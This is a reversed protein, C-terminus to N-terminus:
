NKLFDDYGGQAINITQLLIPALKEIAGRDKLYVVFEASQSTNGKKPESNVKQAGNYTSIAIGPFEGEAEDAILHINQPDLDNLAVRVTTGKKRDPTFLIDMQSNVWIKPELLAEMEGDSDELLSQIKEVGSSIYALRKEEVESLSSISPEEKTSQNSCALLLLVLIGIATNKM